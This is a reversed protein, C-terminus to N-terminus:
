FYVISRDLPSCPSMPQNACYTSRVATLRSTPPEFGGDVTEEQFDKKRMTAIYFFAM